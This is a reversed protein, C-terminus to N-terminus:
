SFQLAWRWTHPLHSHIGAFSPFFIFIIIVGVSTYPFIKLVDFSTYPWNELPFFLLILTSTISHIRRLIIQQFVVHYILDIFRQPQLLLIVFRQRFFSLSFIRMEELDMEGNLPSMHPCHEYRLQRVGLSSKTFRPFCIFFM